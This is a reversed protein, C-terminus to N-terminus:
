KEYEAYTGTLQHFETMGLSVNAVSTNARNQSKLGLPLLPFMQCMQAGVDVLSFPFVRCIHFYGLFDSGLSRRHLVRM